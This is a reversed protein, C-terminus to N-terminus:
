DPKFVFTLKSWGELSHLQRMYLIVFCRFLLRHNKPRRRRAKLNAFHRTLLNIPM